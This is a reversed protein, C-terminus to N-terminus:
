KSDNLSNHQSNNPSNTVSDDRLFTQMLRSSYIDKIELLKSLYENIKQSILIVYQDEMSGFFRLKPLEPVETEQLLLRVKTDLNQFDSFSRCIIYVNALYKPYTICVKLQYVTYSFLFNKRTESGMWLVIYQLEQPPKTDPSGDASSDRKLAVSSDGLAEVNRHGMKLFNQKDLEAKPLSNAKDLDRYIERSTGTSQPSSDAEKPVVQTWDIASLAKLGNMTAHKKKTNYKQVKKLTDKWSGRKSSLNQANRVWKHDLCDKATPRKVPDKVFLFLLFDKLTESADEAPLPPHPDEVMRFLATIGSNDYYPPFGTLLEIITCGLSWIDCASTVATATTQNIVEPAMWFPSGEVVVQPNWGGTPKPNEPIRETLAIGFDTLKIIGEKTILINPGKIDRHVVGHDHLYQLGSLVQEMYICVLSEPFSGYKEVVQALSGSEVYELVLNL